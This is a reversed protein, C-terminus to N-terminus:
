CSSVALELIEAEHEFHHVPLYYECVRQHAAVGLEAARSPDGLLTSIACGVACLDRPDDILIGSEGHVIQDQIGGVRGAAVPRYKWMAEAVTLGFGEALSKQVVVAANGQLANVMAANEAADTMPLTVVHVRARGDRPLRAWADRVEDLVHGGEPDDQVADVAPGALVLHAEDDIVPTREVFATLVGVPDKLSDWRSVQAVMPAGRPVPADELIEARRTIRGRSGDRRWFHADPTEGASDVIGIARLIATRDAEAVPRNKPSLVDICPPMIRVRSADLIDWAYADRSFVAVDAAHVDDRLFEWAERADPGPVDAGIHCRWIVRAGASHLVPALGVTQPDHLVVVDGPSVLDGLSRADPELARHYRDRERAALPGGDGPLDHLRHHMRKTIEFFGDDANIVLWHANTGAGLAYPLLSALLEAVGGGNATSNVHWLERGGLAVRERDLAVDLRRCDEAALVERFRATSEGAIPIENL